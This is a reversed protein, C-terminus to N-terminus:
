DQVGPLAGRNHNAVLFFSEGREAGRVEPTRSQSHSLTIGQVRVQYSAHFERIQEVAPDHDQVARPVM